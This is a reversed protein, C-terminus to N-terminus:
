PRPRPGGELRKAEAIREVSEVQIIAHGIAFREAAIERMRATLLTTEGVSVSGDVVVIATMARMDSTIEWVHIDHVGRVREDAAALTQELDELDVGPPVAEMLVRVSQALLRYSWIGIVLAIVLSLVPDIWLMGTAMIVAAGVVVGVSSLTDGMMHFFASRVNLDGRGGGWLLVASVLNV